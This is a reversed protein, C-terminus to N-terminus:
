SSVEAAPAGAAVAKRHAALAQELGAKV